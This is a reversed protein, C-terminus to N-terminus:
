HFHDPVKQFGRRLSAVHVIVSGQAASFFAQFTFVSFFVDNHDDFPTGTTGPIDPFAVSTTYIM